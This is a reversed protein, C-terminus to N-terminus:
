HLTTQKRAKSSCLVHRNYWLNGLELVVDQEEAASPSPGGPGVLECAETLHAKSKRKLFIFLRAFMLIYADCHLLLPFFPPLCVFDPVYKLKLYPIRRPLVTDRQGYQLHCRRWTYLDPPTMLVTQVQFCNYLIRPIFSSEVSPLLFLLYCVCASM